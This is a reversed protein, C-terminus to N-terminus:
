IVPDGWIEFAICRRWYNVGGERYAQPYKHADQLGQVMTKQYVPPGPLPVPNSKHQQMPWRDTFPMVTMYTM